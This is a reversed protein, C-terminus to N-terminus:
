IKFVPLFVVLSLRLSVHAVAVAGKLLLHSLSAWSGLLPVTAVGIVDHHILVESVFIRKVLLLDFAGLAALVRDVLAGLTSLVLDIDFVIAFVHTEALQAPLEEPDVALLLFALQKQILTSLLEANFPSSNVVDDIDQLAEGHDPSLGLVGVIPTADVM